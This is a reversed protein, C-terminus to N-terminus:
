GWMNQLLKGCVITVWAAHGFSTFAWYSVAFIIVSLVIKFFTNM